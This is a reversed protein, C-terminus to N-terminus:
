SRVKGSIATIQPLSLSVTLLLSGGRREADRTHEQECDKDGDRVWGCGGRGGEKEQGATREEGLSYFVVEVCMWACVCARAHVCVCVFDVPTCCCAGATISEKILVTIRCSKFNGTSRAM